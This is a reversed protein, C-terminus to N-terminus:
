GRGHEREEGLAIKYQRIVQKVEKWSMRDIRVEPFFGLFNCYAILREQLKQDPKHTFQM